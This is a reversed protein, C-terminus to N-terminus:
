MLLEHMAKSLEDLRFPKSLVGQFGYDVFHAMVPDYSYGSCAIAKIHPDIEMLQKIVDKGGIGGPITLDLIVAAFDRGYEKEKVFITIAESGNQACEVTYGLKELLAKATNRIMEEDDMILIRGSGRYITNKIDSVVEDTHDLAPLSFIFTSGKGLTSTVRIKGGHKKIISYCTALGLGSGHKKTTFYPDFIKPLHEDSIGTGTDSVSIRVFKKNNYASTINEAKITILGGEPMFHVANLMLNHIVQVLQGEDAEVLWIDDDISIECKANSGLLAFGTAERLISRISIVKKMPEGGKAFTLLQKALSKARDVAKEADELRDAVQDPENPHLRALSINGLIAALINNFDHAIGGALVGVSEIKQTKLMEQRAQWLENIDELVIWCEGNQDPTAQLHAWFSSGDARVMRMEWSEAINTISIKKRQLYFIDQDESLIYSSFAHKLLNVRAVGLLTAVTLNAEQIIGQQNITLYGVPALDYLELYRRRSAELEHQTRRLEENQMELEAQHVKLEHLLQHMQDPSLPEETFTNNNKVKNAARLRLEEEPNSGSNTTM